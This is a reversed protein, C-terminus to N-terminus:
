FTPLEGLNDAEIRNADTRLYSRNEIYVVHVDEGKRWQGDRMYITVFSIGKDIAEVINTKTWATGNGVSSDNDPHAKLHSIYHRNTTGTYRVASILYDAWKAM